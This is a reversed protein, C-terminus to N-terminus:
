ELKFGRMMDDANNCKGLVGYQQSFIITGVRVSNNLRRNCRDSIRGAILEFFEKERDWDKIYEIAEETTNSKMINEILDIDAGLLASYASLTEMRADSIRSHTHFIGAAVKIMKGIHGVWLIEKIGYEKIKDLMFGIFNSTKILYNTDLGMSKSFDRGYNGPSLILKRIGEEKKVSVEIALSDKFAEESMPEVIGTTGIISIGGEIGLLPNFTKKGIEVGEPSFITVKIGWDLPIESKVEEEITRRPTPNIAYKGIDVALGKKTVIGIGEGGTIDIGKESTREVKAFIKIGDTIDPDDGADKKVSCQVYEENLVIDELELNLKWGKSTDITIYELKERNVLMRAAAKAAATACSGTTYGYRMKKGDKYIYRDM